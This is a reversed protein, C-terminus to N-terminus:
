ALHVSAINWLMGSSSQGTIAQICLNCRPTHRCPDTYICSAFQRGASSDLPCYSPLLRRTQWGLMRGKGPSMTQLMIVRGYLSTHTHKLDKSSTCCQLRCDASLARGKKILSSPPWPNTLLPTCRGMRSFTHAAFTAHKCTHASTCHDSRKGEM